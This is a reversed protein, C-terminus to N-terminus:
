WNVTVYSVSATASSVNIQQQSICNYPAGGPNLPIIPTAATGVDIIAAGTNIVQCGIRSSNAALAVTATSPTASTTGATDTETQGAISPKTYSPAGSGCPVAQNSSNLCGQVELPAGATPDLPTPYRSQAHACTAWLVLIPMIGISGWGNMKHVM